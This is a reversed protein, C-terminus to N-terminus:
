GGANALAALKLVTALNRSTAVRGAQGLLAVAAKSELIGKACLLYAASRGLAFREPAIVLAGIASLDRLSKSDQVFAVLLRPYEEAEADIPNEAIISSLEKLSKVVV